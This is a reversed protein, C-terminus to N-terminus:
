ETTSLNAQDRAGPRDLNLDGQSGGFMATDGVSGLTSLKEVAPGPRCSNALDAGVLLRAVVLQLAMWGLRRAEWERPCATSGRRM